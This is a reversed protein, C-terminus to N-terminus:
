TMHIFIHPLVHDRSLLFGVDESLYSNGVDENVRSKGFQSEWGM